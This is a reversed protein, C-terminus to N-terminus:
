DGKLSDIAVQLAVLSEGPTLGRERISVSDGACVKRPDRDTGLSRVVILVYGVAGKALAPSRLAAIDRQVLDREHRQVKDRENM